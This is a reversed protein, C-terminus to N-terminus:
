NWSENSKSLKRNMNTSKTASPPIQNIIYISSKTFNPPNGRPNRPNRNKSGGYYKHASTYVHIIHIHASEYSNDM